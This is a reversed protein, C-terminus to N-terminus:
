KVEQRSVDPFLAKNTYLYVHDLTRVLGDKKIKRANKLKNM